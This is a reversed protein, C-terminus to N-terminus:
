VTASSQKLWKIVALVTLVIVYIATAGLVAVIAYAAYTLGKLLQILYKKSQALAKELHDMKEESKRIVQRTDNIIGEFGKAVRRTERMTEKFEKREARFMGRPKHTQGTGPLNHRPSTPRLSAPTLCSSMLFSGLGILRVLHWQKM